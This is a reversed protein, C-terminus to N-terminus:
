GPATDLGTRRVGSETALWRVRQDHTELPVEEVIWSDLAVGVSEVDPRLRALLEDYYGLGRGLRAGRRDFYLGPLLVVDIESDGVVRATAIPQAFGYRHTERETDYPHITLPGLEPTRTLAWAPGSLSDHLPGLDVEGPLPLYSLVVAALREELWKELLSCIRGSDAATAWPRNRALYRLLAKSTM